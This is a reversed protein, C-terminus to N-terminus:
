KLLRYEEHKKAQKPTNYQRNKEPHIGAPKKRKQVGLKKTIDKKQQLALKYGILVGFMVMFSHSLLLIILNTPEIM